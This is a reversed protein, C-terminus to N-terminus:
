LNYNALKDKNKECKLCFTGILYRFISSCLCVILGIYHRNYHGGYKDTRGSHAVAVSCILLSLLITRFVNKM